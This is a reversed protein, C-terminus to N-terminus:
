FGYGLCDVKSEVCRGYAQGTSFGWAFWNGSCCGQKCEENYICGKDAELSDTEHRCRWNLSTRHGLYGTYRCVLDGSCQRDALCGGGWQGWGFVKLQRSHKMSNSNTCVNNICQEGLDCLFSFGGYCEEGVESIIQDINIFLM